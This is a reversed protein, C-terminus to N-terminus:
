PLNAPAEHQVLMHPHMGTAGGNGTSLRLHPDTPNHIRHMVSWTAPDIPPEARGSESISFDSEWALVRGGHVSGAISFSHLCRVFCVSVGQRHFPLVPWGAM